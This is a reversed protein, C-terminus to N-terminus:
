NEINGDNLLNHSCLLVHAHSDFGLRETPHISEEREDEENIQSDRIRYGMFLQLYRVLHSRVPQIEDLQCKKLDTKGQCVVAIASTVDSVGGFECKDQLNREDNMFNVEEDRNYSLPRYGGHLKESIARVEFQERIRRVLIHSLISHIWEIKCSINSSEGYKSNFHILLHENEDHNEMAEVGEETECHSAPLSDGLSPSHYIVCDISLQRDGGNGVGRGPLRALYDITKWSNKSM